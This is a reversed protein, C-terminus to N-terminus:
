FSCRPTCRRSVAGRSSGFACTRTPSHRRTPAPRARRKVSEKLSRRRDLRSRAGRRDWGERMWDTDEAARRAGQPEAAADRGVALRHHRRGQVRAPAAIGGEIRAAPAKRARVAPRAGSRGACRRAQGQGPGVGQAEAANAAAPLPLARAHAGAGARHARRRQHHRRRRRDRPLHERVAERVKEDHRLWDRAGRSFLEYWKAATAPDHRQAAQRDGDM